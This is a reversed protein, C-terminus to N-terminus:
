TRLLKELQTPSKEPQEIASIIADSFYNGALKAFTSNASYFVDDLPAFIYDENPANRHFLKIDKKSRAIYSTILESSIHNEGIASSAYKVMNKFMVIVDEYEIFWPMKGNVIFEQFLAETLINNKLVTIESVVPSDKGYEFVIYEVENVSKENILIPSTHIMAPINSVSYKDDKTFAFIGYIEIKSGIKALGKDLYRKPFEIKIDEKTILTNDKKTIISKFYTPDRKM